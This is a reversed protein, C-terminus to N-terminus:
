VAHGPSERRRREAVQAAIAFGVGWAIALWGASPVPVRDPDAYSLALWCGPALLGLLASRRMSGVLREVNAAQPAEWSDLVSSARDASEESVVVRTVRNTLGRHTSVVEVEEELFSEVGAAGLADQLAESSERTGKYLTVWEAM